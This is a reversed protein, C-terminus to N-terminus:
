TRNWYDTCLLIPIDLLFLCNAQCISSTLTLDIDSFLKYQCIVGLFISSIM